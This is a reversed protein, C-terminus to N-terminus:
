IQPRVRRSPSYAVTVGLSHLIFNILCLDLQCFISSLRLTCDYVGQSASGIVDHYVLLWSARLEEWPLRSRELCARGPISKWRLGRRRHKRPIPVRGHHVRRRRALHRLFRPLQRAHKNTASPSLRACAHRAMLLPTPQGPCSSSSSNFILFTM